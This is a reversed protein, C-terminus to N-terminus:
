ACDATHYLATQNWNAAWGQGDPFMQITFLPIPAPAAATPTDSAAQTTPARAPYPTRANAGAPYASEPLAAEPAAKPTCGPVVLALILLFILPFLHKKM